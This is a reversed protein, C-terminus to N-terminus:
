WGGGGGGGGGGGSFGGGGSGGSSSSSSSVSSASQSFSNMSSAFVAANFTSRGVYWDPTSSSTDYYSGLQKTWDKEMKFLVAYPLLREYLKVLLKPDHSVDGDVVSQVKEAGEPSQLMQLREAEAVGIYLKLGKMYRYLDLGKDTLRWAVLSEIYFILAVLGWVPSLLLVMPLLAFKAGRGILRKAPEDKEQLGYEGRILENLDTDNNAMRAAYLYDKRLEKLNMRQGVSPLSKFMDKLLEQEEEHLDSLDRIIEIEYEAPRLLSKEKVEYIKVYHRVAFDLMQATMTSGLCKGIKGATTVSIDKPPIYEPVVTGVEKKRNIRKYFRIQYVIMYIMAIPFIVIQVFGWVAVIKEALTQKYEAFTGQNFGIAMTMGQYAGLDSADATFTAGDPVLECRNTSGTKGVYCAEDGTLAKELSDDVMLKVRVQSIPVQWELGLVDWYLEDRGVDKYYRTVDRMTYSIVYTQQGHVFKDANGIQLADDDWHYELENGRDDTVNKLDFSLSHGDYEKVFARTLGHNQDYEPFDATVTEKVALTSRQEDDRSLNMEIDYSSITFNNLSRASTVASLGLVGVISIIVGFLIKKM